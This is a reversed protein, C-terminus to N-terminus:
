WITNVAGSFRLNKDATVLPIKKAIATAAIMRDSPDSNIEPSLHVSLEAIEPDIGVLHYQNANLLIEIFKQYSTGPDLRGKSMLMAIEWLSIECFLIGDKNNANKIAAKAARSLKQPELADWIIVCTDLVIM